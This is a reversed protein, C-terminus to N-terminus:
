THLQQPLPDTTPEKLHTPQNSIRLPYTSPPSFFTRSYTPNSASHYPLTAHSSRSGFRSRAHARPIRRSGAQNSNSTLPQHNTTPPPISDTPQPFLDSPSTLRPFSLPRPPQASPIAQAQKPQPAYPILHQM